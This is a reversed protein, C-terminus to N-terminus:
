PKIKKMIQDAKEKGVVKKAELEFSRIMQHVKTEIHSARNLVYDLRKRDNDRM